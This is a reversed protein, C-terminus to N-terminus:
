IRVDAASRKSGMESRKMGGVADGALDKCPLPDFLTIGM